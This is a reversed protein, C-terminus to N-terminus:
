RSLGELVQRSNAEGMTFAASRGAKTVKKVVSGGTAAEVSDLGQVLLDRTADTAKYGVDTLASVLVSQAVPAPAARAIV